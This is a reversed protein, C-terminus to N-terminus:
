GAVPCVEAFEAGDVGDLLMQADAQFAVQLVDLMQSWCSTHRRNFFFEFQAVYLPLYVKSVGRYTRIAQRLWSWTCEITNCHVAGRAYEGAGHNVTAHPYGARDLFHYIDYSDTYVNAGRQVLQEIVPRITATQVNRLTVLRVQGGRCLLGLIPVRDSAWTGRGRRKLGRRRPDRDLPQNGAEGKLGATLYVEDGEVIHEPGLAIPEGSRAQYIAGRLLRFYRDVTHRNVQVEASTEVAAAQAVFAEVILWLSRIDLRCGAFLTGTLDNFTGGEGLDGALHCVLCRYRRLGGRYHPDLVELCTPATEGCHPCRLGNAWRVRRLREWLEAEPVCDIWGRGQRLDALPDVPPVPPAPPPPTADGSAPPAGNVPVPPTWGLL